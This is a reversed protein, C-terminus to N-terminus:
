FECRLLGELFVVGAKVGDVIRIERGREEGLTEICAERMMEEMGAMGACGLCIAAVDGTRILTKTAEKMRKKVEATPAEHLDTANLGTTAVGSFLHSSEGLLREVATTLLGEWVKGTSVIGFKQGKGILLLAATVSSEFIGTVPKRTKEKLM